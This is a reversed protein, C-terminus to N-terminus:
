ACEERTQLRAVADELEHVKQERIEMKDEQAQVREERVTARQERVLAREERLHVREERLQVQQERLEVEQERKQVELERQQVSVIELPPVTGTPSKSEKTHRSAKVRDADKKLTHAVGRVNIKELVDIAVELAYDAGYQKLMQQGVEMPEAQQLTATPINAYGGRLEVNRLKIKFKKVEAPNLNELAKTLIDLFRGDM